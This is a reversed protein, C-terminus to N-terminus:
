ATEGDEELTYLGIGWFVLFAALWLTGAATTVPQLGALGYLLGYFLWLPGAALLAWFLAIRAQYWTGRGGMMRAVLRSLAAILYLALPVIFLWAMLAGGLRADFPTTPDELAQRQVVPLMGLFMVACASLLTVLARDERPSGSGRRRIVERPARYTRLIDLAASM